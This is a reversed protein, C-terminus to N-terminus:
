VHARGIQSLEIETSDLDTGFSLGNFYQDAFIATEVEAAILDLTDDLSSTAAAVGAVVLELNREQEGSVNDPDNVIEESMAYIALGPLEAGESLYPNIRNATVRAATTTLGTLLVKARDRIQKRVHSM